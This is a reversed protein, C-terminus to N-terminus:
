TLLRAIFAVFRHRWTPVMLTDEPNKASRARIKDMETDTLLLTEIVGEKSQIAVSWYVDASGFKKDLNPRVDLKGYIM